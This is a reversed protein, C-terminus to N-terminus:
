FSSRSSKGTARLARMQEVSWRAARDAIGHRDLTILSDMVAAAARAIALQDGNFGVRGTTNYRFIVADHIELQMTMDVVAQETFEVGDAALLQMMQTYTIGTEIWDWLDTRTAKGSTICTILDWHIVQCALQKSPALKPRWFKPLPAPTSSRIALRHFLTV